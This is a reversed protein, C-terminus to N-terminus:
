IILFFGHKYFIFKKVLMHSMHNFKTRKKVYKYKYVNTVDIINNYVVSTINFYFIIIIVVTCSKLLFLCM